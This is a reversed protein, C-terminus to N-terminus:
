WKIKILDYLKENQEKFLELLRNQDNYSIPKSYTKKNYITSDKSIHGGKVDLFSYVQELVSQKNKFFEESKIFLFQNIDFYELWRSISDFYFSRELYTKFRHECSSFNSDSILEQNLSSLFSEHYDDIITTFSREERGEQSEHNYHSYARKIPDQVMVIMKINPIHQSVIIPVCPHFLYYTCDEGTVVNKKRFVRRLLLTFKLSFFTRYRKFGKLGVNHTLYFTEKIKASVVCPNETM